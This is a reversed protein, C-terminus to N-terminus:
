LRDTVHRKQLSSAPLRSSMTRLSTTSSSRTPSTCQMMSAMIPRPPGTASCCGCSSPTGSTPALASKTDQSHQSCRVTVAVTPLHHVTARRATIPAPPAHPSLPATHSQEPTSSKPELVSHQPPPLPPGTASCCGCSSPIGSTLPLSTDQQPPQQQQQWQEPLM